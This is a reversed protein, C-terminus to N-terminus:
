AVSYGRRKQTKVVYTKSDSVSLTSTIKSLYCLNMRKKLPGNQWAEVTMFLHMSYSVIAVTM